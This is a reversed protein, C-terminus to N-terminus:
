QNLRKPKSRAKRKITPSNLRKKLTKAPLFRVGKKEPLMVYIGKNVNHIKRKKRRAVLFCGFGSHQYSKGTMLLQIITGFIFSVIRASQSLTLDFEDALARSLENKRM